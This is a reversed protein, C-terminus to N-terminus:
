NSGRGAVNWAPRLRMGCVHFLFFFVRFSLAANVAIRQRTNVHPWSGMCRGFSVVGSPLEVGFLSVADGCRKPSDGSRPGGTLRWALQVQRCHRPQESGNLLPTGEGALGSEDARSSWSVKKTINAMAAGPLEARM